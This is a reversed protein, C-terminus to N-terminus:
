SNGYKKKLNKIITEMNALILVMLYRRVMEAMMLQGAAEIREVSAVNDGSIRANIENCWSEILDNLRMLVDFTEDSMM